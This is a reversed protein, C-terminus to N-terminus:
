RTGRDYTRWSNLARDLNELFLERDGPTINVNLRRKRVVEVAHSSSFTTVFNVGFTLGKPIRAAEITNFPINLSFPSGLVIKVRSDLICFNRPFVVWFVVAMFAATGFMGM